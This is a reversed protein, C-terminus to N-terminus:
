GNLDIKTEQKQLEVEPLEQRGRKYFALVVCTLVVTLTMLIAILVITVVAGIVAVIMTPIERRGDTASDLYCTNNHIINLRFLLNSAVEINSKVEM